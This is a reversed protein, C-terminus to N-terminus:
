KISSYIVAGVFIVFEVALTTLIGQVFPDFSM